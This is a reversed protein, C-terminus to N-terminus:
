DADVRVAADEVRHFQLVFLAEDRIEDVVVAQLADAFKGAFRGLEDIQVRFAAPGVAKRGEDLLEIPQPASGSTFDRPM